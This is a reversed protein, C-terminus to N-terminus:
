FEFLVVLGEQKLEFHVGQSQCEHVLGVFVNRHEAVKLHFGLRRPSTKFNSAADNLQRAVETEPSEETETKNMAETIDSTEVKDLPTQRSLQVQVVEQLTQQHTKPRVVWGTLGLATAIRYLITRWRYM